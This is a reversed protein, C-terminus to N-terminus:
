FQFYIFEVPERVGFILIWVILWAYFLARLVLPLRLMVLLDRSRQQAIQVLLLPTIFYAVEYGMELAQRTVSPQFLHTFFYGLQELDTHVLKREVPDVVGSCRFLVWGILTLVTMVAWRVAFNIRPAVGAIEVRPGNDFLRYIVLILGHFVGWLVFNWSAGHWLGGLVMTIMLNRCTFLKSGRNGGLPIYLYDRLWTSLSIHWRSWFDSPSTAFYPLRFNIMLEFGMLKATGRAIDSYASFDGYIQFAFALAGVWLSAGSYQDYNNFVENAVQACNDAVVLKKFYGWLILYLGANVNELTVVRPREVRPLLETAREIPGAVLQPFFSVFLAFNVISDTAKLDRRYVDITYSLAQFTYFSIGVPLVVNLMVPDAEFGMANIVKVASDAFFNFYKFVGLLTLNSFLSVLILVKRQPPEPIRALVFYALNAVLVFALAGLTMELGDPALTWFAPQQGEPWAKQIAPWNPLMFLPILVVLWATAALRKKLPIAGRDMMLSVGYDVVSSLAILTLFRVDWWGYFVYSAVLLMINQARLRGQTLWYLGYVILFFAAFVFSTFAM